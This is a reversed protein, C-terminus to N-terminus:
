STCKIVKERHFQGDSFEGVFSGSATVQIIKGPYADDYAYVPNLSQELKNIKIKLKSIEEKQEMILELDMVARKEWYERTQPM